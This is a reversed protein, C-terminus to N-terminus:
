KSGLNFRVFARIWNLEDGAEYGAGVALRKAFNWIGNIEISTDDSDGVDLYNVFGNVELRELLMWRVGGTVKVGDESDLDVFAAEAVVDARDGLLGHWGGGAQWVEADSLDGYEAFFQFNAFGVSGGAFWGDESSSSGDPDVQLWGAEVFTYHPSQALAPLPALLIMATLLIAKRM